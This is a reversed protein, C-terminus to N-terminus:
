DNKPPNIVITPAGENDIQIEQKDRWYEPKRNKLWFIAATTDPAIIETLEVVEIKETEKLRKGNEYSM